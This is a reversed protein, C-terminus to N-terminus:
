WRLGELIKMPRNRISSCESLGYKLPCRNTSHTESRILYSPFKPRPIQATGLPHSASLPLANPLDHINTFSMLLEHLFCLLFWSRLPTQIDSVFDHQNVYVKLEIKEGFIM